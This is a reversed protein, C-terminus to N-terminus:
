RRITSVAPMRNMGSGGSGVREVADARAVVVAIAPEGRDIAADLPGEDVGGGRCRLRECVDETVLGRIDHQM